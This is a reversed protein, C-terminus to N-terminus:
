GLGEIIRKKFYGEASSALGLAETYTADLSITRYFENLTHPSAVRASIVVAAVVDLDEMADVERLYDGLASILNSKAEDIGAM